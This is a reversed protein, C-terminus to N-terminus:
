PTVGGDWPCHVGGSATSGGVESSEAEWVTMEVLIARKITHGDIRFGTM